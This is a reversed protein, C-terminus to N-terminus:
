AVGERRRESDTKRREHERAIVTQGVSVKVPLREIEAVMQAFTACARHLLATTPTKSRGLADLAEAHARFTPTHSMM